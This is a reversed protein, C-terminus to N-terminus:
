LFSDVKVALAQFIAKGYIGRQVFMGLSSLIIMSVPIKLYHQKKLFILLLWALMAAWFVYVAIGIKDLYYFGIVFLGAGILGLLSPALMTTWNGNVRDAGFLYFLILLTFIFMGIWSFTSESLIIVAFLLQLGLGWIIIRPKIAKRNKSFLFGISLITIIGLIGIFRM